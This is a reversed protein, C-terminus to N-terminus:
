GSRSGSLPNIALQGFQLALAVIHGFHKSFDYRTALGAGISCSQIECDLRAQFVPSINGLAPLCLVPSDILLVVQQARVDDGLLFMLSLSPVTIKLRSRRSLPPVLSVQSCALLSPFGTSCM